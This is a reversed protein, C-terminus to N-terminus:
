MIIERLLISRQFISMLGHKDKNNRRTNGKFSLGCARYESLSIIRPLSTNLANKKEFLANNIRKAQSYSLPNIQM